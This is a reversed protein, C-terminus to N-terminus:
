LRSPGKSSRRSQRRAEGARRRGPCQSGGLRCGCPVVHGSGATSHVILPRLRRSGNGAPPAPEAARRNARARSSRKATASSRTSEAPPRRNRSSKTNKPKAQSRFRHSPSPMTTSRASSKRLGRWHSKQTTARTRRSRRPQLIRAQSKAAADNAKAKQNLFSPIAIAALIGILLIVVMLEIMSFGAESRVDPDSRQSM